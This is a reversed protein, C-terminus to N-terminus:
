DHRLAARVAKIGEAIGAQVEPSFRAATGSLRLAELPIVSIVLARRLMTIEAAGRDAVDRVVSHPVDDRVVARLQAAIDTAEQESM